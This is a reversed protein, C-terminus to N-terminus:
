GLETLVSVDAIALFAQQLRKLMALRNSRLAPDDAMVMVAEFYADVPTKLEALLELAEAYAATNISENVSTELAELAALLDTEAANEFLAPNIPTALAQANETHAKRLLNRIRKNASALSAAAPLAAFAQCAKIRRDFDLPSFANVDIVRRVAEFLEPAIGQEQYLAKLREICFEVLAPVQAAADVSAPQQAASERFQQTLNLEHEAEILTRLLGLAARRLAFPDKAGTPAKGIAFIGTLTDIRGTIALLQGLASAAIADGSFRPQYGEDLAAAVAPHEGSELAYYRGMIGQLEPFEGVMETVLDASALMGARVAEEPKVKFTDALAEAHKAVRKSKDALSGLSKQFVVQNLGDLRDGLAQKRDQDWFFAADALRPRIVRENGAIVQKPDRSELNAITIFHRLLKGQGDRVPFYRQHGQMSSILAEPPVRLFDESFSGVLAVPWEVLAAVEDLLDEDIIAQGGLRQGEAIVQEAIISRRKANDVVVYGTYLQEVYRKATEIRIPEPHHFRHGESHQGANVGFFTAPVVQDDLMLVVWHVPRVFEITESGWRMRKPIPLQTLAHEIVDPLLDASSQGPEVGRHVLWEGQETKLTELAEVSVGCARAFGEAAQTAQGSSDFANALAPGRREFARDPQQLTVADVQVALRRPAAFGTVTGHQIGARSLGEEIHKSLSTQLQQLAGPPLEEMGLEFLLTATEASM